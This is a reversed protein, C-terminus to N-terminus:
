VYTFTYKKYTKNTNCARRMSSAISEINGVFIEKELFYAACEKITKFTLDLAPVYVQKNKSVANKNLYEFTHGLYNSKYGNCVHRIAGSVSEKAAKTLGLELMYEAAENSFAFTKDLTKSYIKRQLKTLNSQKEIVIGESELARTITQPSVDYKKAVEIVSKLALYDQAVQTSDIDHRRVGEGGITSNYGSKNYTDYLKIYEVEKEEIIGEPFVGLIEMTFSEPGYKHIAQAIVTDRKTNANSLHKQLRDYINQYTKGIYSKGNKMNIIRYLTGNM